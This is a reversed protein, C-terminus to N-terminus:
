APADDGSRRSALEREMRAIEKARLPYFLLASAALLTLLAPVVSFMLRIGLLSTDDQTANAVFGFLGLIWGALGAGIALGSKQAFLAGSFVLGTTRRGRKWEGYDACDAYMSWVIAPTPGVVLMSAINVALM